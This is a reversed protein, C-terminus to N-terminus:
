LEPLIVETTFFRSDIVPRTYESIEATGVKGDIEYTVKLSKVIGYNPDGALSKFDGTPILRSNGARMRVRPTLDVWKDGAGYVASIIKLSNVKYQTLDRVELKTGAKEAASEDAHVIVRQNRTNKMEVRGEDVSLITEKNSLSVRLITGLVTMTAKPTLVLLPKNLDQKNVDANLFGNKFDVKIQGYIKTLFLHSNPSVTFSSGENCRILIQSDGSTRIETGSLMGMGEKAKWTQGNLSLTTTGSISEIVALNQSVQEPSVEPAKEVIVEPESKKIFKMYYGLSLALFLSAALILFAGSNRRNSSVKRKVEAARETSVKLRNKTPVSEAHELKVRHSSLMSEVAIYDLYRRRSESDNKLIEEFRMQEADTLVGEVFGKLLEDFEKFDNM